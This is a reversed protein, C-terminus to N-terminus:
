YYYFFLINWNAEGCEKNGELTRMKMLLFGERETKQNSKTSLRQGRNPMKSGSPSPMHNGLIENASSYNHELILFAGSPV